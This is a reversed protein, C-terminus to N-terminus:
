IFYKLRSLDENLYGLEELMSGHYAMFLQQMMEPMEEKWAGYEGRRFFLRPFTDSYTELRRDTIFASDGSRQSEFTPIRTLNPEPLNLMSTLKNICREPDSILQEFHFVLDARYLWARVNATWGGFHSGEPATIAERLNEEFPSGPAVINSRHHAESVVADRGDRIICIIFPETRLFEHNNEPLDHTKIIQCPMYELLDEPRHLQDNLFFRDRKKVMPHSLTERLFIYRHYNNWSFLGFVDFFINRLFTNGSRPYSAICINYEIDKLTFM